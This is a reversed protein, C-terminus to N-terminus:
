RICGCRLGSNWRQHSKLYMGGWHGFYVLGRFMVNALVRALVNFNQPSPTWCPTHTAPNAYKEATNSDIVTSLEHDQVHIHTTSSLHHCRGWANHKALNGNRKRCTMSSSPPSSTSSASRVKWHMSWPSVGLLAAAPLPNGMAIVPDYYSHIHNLLVHYFWWVMPYAPADYKDIQIRQSPSHFAVGIAPFSNSKSVWPTARATKGKWWKRSIYFVRSGWSHIISKSYLRSSSIPTPNWESDWCQTNLTIWPAVWYWVVSLWRRLPAWMQRESRMLMPIYIASWEYCLFM